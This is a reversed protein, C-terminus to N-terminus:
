LLLHKRCILLRRFCGNGETGGGSSVRELRGKFKSVRCVSCRVDFSEIATHALLQSFYQLLFKASVRLSVPERQAPGQGAIPLVLEAIMTYHVSNVRLVVHYDYATDANTLLTIRLVDVSLEFGDGFCAAESFL